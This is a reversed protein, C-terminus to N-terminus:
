QAIFEPLFKKDLRQVIQKRSEPILRQCSKDIDSPFAANGDPLDTMPEHVYTRAPRSVEEM